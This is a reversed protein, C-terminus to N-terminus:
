FMWIIDGNEISHLLYGALFFTTGNLLIAVVWPCEAELWPAVIMASFMAIFGLWGFLKAFFKM